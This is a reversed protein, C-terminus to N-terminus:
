KNESHDNGRFKKCPLMRTMLSETASESKQINEGSIDLLM